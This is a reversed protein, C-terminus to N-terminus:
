VFDLLINNSQKLSSESVQKANDSKCGGWHQVGSLLLCTISNMCCTCHLQLRFIQYFSKPGLTASSFSCSDLHFWHLYVTYGPRLGTRIETHPVSSVTPLCKCSQSRSMYGPAEAQVLPFSM